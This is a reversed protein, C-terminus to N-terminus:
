QWRIMRSESPRTSLSISALAVQNDWSPVSAKMGAVFIAFFVVLVGVGAVGHGMGRTLASTMPLSIPMGSEPSLRLFVAM